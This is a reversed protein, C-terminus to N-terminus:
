GGLYKRMKEEAADLTRQVSSKSKGVSKAIDRVTFEMFYKQYVVQKEREALVSLAKQLNIAASSEAFVDTAASIDFFEDINVTKNRKERKLMSLAVNQTIKCIWAYGNTNADFRNAYKVIKIFAEQVADEALTRNKLVSRAVSLMRGSVARSLDDLANVNGQAIFVINKNIQKRLQDNM